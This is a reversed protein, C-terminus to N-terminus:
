QARKSLLKINGGIATTNTSVTQEISFRNLYHPGGAKPGTGSLGMGGFPQVGVVASIMNRNIYINGVKCQEIIQNITHNIRSHIGLTLGYGCQNIAEIVKEIQESDYRIVHLVPGFHEESLQSLASLEILTPPFFNDSAQKASLKLQFFSLAELKIKNIHDQLQRCAQPNIVPGVDTTIDKPDAIVLLQMVQIIREIIQEAIQQPLFLVRLASCRQGASNFASQVVDQILQEPYASSDAIMVNQGGTEAILPIIDRRQALQQNITQAVVNSGTFAVGAICQDLLLHRKISAGDAPMFHLVQKPIGAEHLIQICRMAVLPTHSAPKAIVTNGSALAATVQGIFIAIPFNWPSICVFVGRGYQRLQNTEGTPGPLNIPRAYLDIAQEAYYRCFDVAERIEALSDVITKGSERVCLSVLELRNQEILNAAKQLIKARESAASLRWAKHALAASDIAKKLTSQDSFVVSGVIEDANAPNIIAQETGTIAEGDLLPYAQFKHTQWKVLSQEIQKQVRIDALNIGESNIRKKGFLDKPLNLFSKKEPMAQLQAVPDKIITAIAIDPNEIQNIFSTNAGNELLRRVLYPLLDRYIGIPAYVRCPMNNESSHSLQQYLMEGMGHLRQFEYRSDSNAMEQIAAVTHANHTAFQPKFYDAHNFLWQACALYSVDTARKDTFVPYNALGNLQARKIESDWYAGKVLRIPIKCHLQQAVALLYHLTAWARKQYAQVAMGLGSWGKLSSHSIVQYFIDLSLVLRESEEADITVTINAAYAQQCLALLKISIQQIARQGQLVEYRPYLASLKISISPNKTSKQHQVQRVLHEIAQAYANYYVTADEMTLAAEGLMDFSYLTNRNAKAKQMAKEISEAMVFQYAMQQMAQKVATRILPLGLRSSLQSFVQQQNLESLNISREFDGMVDLTQSAFNVWLSDSHYLHKHWDAEVLKEQLFLDQTQQDPIRLLAEAISMLVLGEDSSLQYEQMFATILNKQKNNQRLNEVISQARCEIKEVDYNTLNLLLRDLLISEDLLYDQNIKNRYDELSQTM